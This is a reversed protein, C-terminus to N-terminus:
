TSRSPLCCAASEAGVSLSVLMAEVHQINARREYARTLYMAGELTMPQRLEIDTRLPDGLGATFVQTQQSETM